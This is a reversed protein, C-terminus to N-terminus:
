HPKNQGGPTGPQPTVMKIIGAATLQDLVGKAKNLMDIVAGPPMVLRCVPVQRATLPSPPKPDDPRVICFEFRFNNGDFGVLRTSDAFTESLIM